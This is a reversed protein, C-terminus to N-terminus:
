CSAGSIFASNWTNAEVNFFLIWKKKYLTSDYKVLLFRWPSTPPVLKRNKINTMCVEQGFAQVKNLTTDGLDMVNRILVDELTKPLQMEKTLIDAWMKQTMLWAYSLIEGSVLREKLYVIVNGLTKTSIQQSSAVSELNSESDTHLWISIRNIVEGYLLLELQRAASVSDDIMKCLNLTEADKSSHWVRQIHKTKWFIPAARTMSFNALFLFIGGIAKDDQKYSDDGIGVIILNDKGGIYEYKNSIHVLDINQNNAICYLTLGGTSLRKNSSLVFLYAYDNKYISQIDITLM